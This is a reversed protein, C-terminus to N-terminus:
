AVTEAAIIAESTNLRDSPPGSVLGFAAIQM